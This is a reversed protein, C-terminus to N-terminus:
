FHRNWIFSSSDCASGPFNAVKDVIVSIYEYNLACTILCNITFKFSHQFYELKIRGFKNYDNCVLRAFYMKNTILFLKIFM